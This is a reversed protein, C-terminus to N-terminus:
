KRKRSPLARSIFALALIVMFTMAYAPIQFNFDVSSHLMIATISMVVAFAMSGALKDKRRVMVRTAAVLPTLLLGGLFVMGIVGTEVMFEYYDNHAHAYYNSIDDGRYLPYVNQFSGLGSGTLLFDNNYSKIDRFVLGREQLLAASGEGLHIDTELVEGAHTQATNHVVTKELRDMVQDIGFWAGVVVIDILLISIVLISLGRRAHKLFVMGMVGAVLLAVMFSINGMRSRTMVLAIVMIILFLRLRFKENLLVSMWNRIRAKWHESAQQKMLALMLGIGISLCLVLYGALHNRNIFTGTAVGEYAQKEFWFIHEVGTLTMLSGYLAQFLGSIVLIWALLKLRQHSKVLLLALSFVCIYAITKLISSQTAWVDLSITGTVPTVGNLIQGAEMQIEAARPSLIELWSMPLPLVQLVLWALWLLFLGHMPWASIFAPSPTARQLAWLGLWSLMLVCAWIVSVSWAAPIAGGFPLPAFILLALFGAYIPRDSLPSKMLSDESFM